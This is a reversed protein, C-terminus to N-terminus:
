ENKKLEAVADKQLSDMKEKIKEEQKLFNKIHIEVVERQEELEKQLKSQEAAIMLKGVIKYAKDTTKLERLASNLELLQADFHQKQTLIHQLNQQLLQLQTVNSDM